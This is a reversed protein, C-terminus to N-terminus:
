RSINFVLQTECRPCQWITSSITGVTRQIISKQKNQYCHACIWHAPTTTDETPKSAYVFIKDAVETLAYNKAEAEWDQIEMLQRKLENKEDLLNQYQSQLTIMTNQLAIVASQTEIAQERLAMDVKSNIVTRTLATISNITVLAANIESVM